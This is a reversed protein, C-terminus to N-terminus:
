LEWSQNRLNELKLTQLLNETGKKLTAVIDIDEFLNM